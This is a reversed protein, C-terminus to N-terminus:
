AGSRAEEHLDLRMILRNWGVTGYKLWALPTQISDGRFGVSEYLRRAPENDRVVTLAVCEVGLDRARHVVADLLSRACGNRRAAEDVILNRLLLHRPLETGTPERVAVDCTAVIRGDDDRCAIIATEEGRENPGCLLTQLAQTTLERAEDSYEESAVAELLARTAFRGKAKLATLEAYDSAVAVRTSFDFAWAQAVWAAIAVAKIM